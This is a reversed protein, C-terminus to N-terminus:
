IIEGIYNILEDCVSECKDITKAECMVRILPETGSPRVLIRGEDKLSDSLEEIRKKFGEHSLIAEKNTVTMNKLMQPYIVLDKTLEEISKGEDKLINLVKIMTLLGDGTNMDELFIIHGSQEGGLSFNNKKMEAQVYKDGVGVEVIKINNNKLAIKLGINSMVTLVLSDDHLTKNKKMYRGCLYMITDGSIVNGNSDMALCRDADGDFAFAIDYKHSKMESKLLEIHTSGCHDNINTGNYKNNIITANVGLKPAIRDILASASGNACDFLVRLKSSSKDAKSLLFEVYEDVLEDCVPYRGISENVALPINDVPSDIYKEIEEEISAELKEGHRNFVKIGNDYYPNHSASIMVGYDFNHKRVLYSVSPTTSIGIDYVDSGSSVIGTALSDALLKGSLRTDRAILIRNKKEGEFHGIFRGIRYAIFSTLQKNAVGRVGDTGFYKPM